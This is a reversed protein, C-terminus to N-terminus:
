QTISWIEYAEDELYKMIGLCYMFEEDGINSGRKTGGRAFGNKMDGQITLLTEGKEDTHEIVMEFGFKSEYDTVPSVAYYIFSYTVHINPNEALTFYVDYQQEAPRNTVKVGAKKLQSRLTYETVNSNPIDEKALINYVRTVGPAAWKLTKELPTKENPRQFDPIYKEALNEASISQGLNNKVIDEAQSTLEFLSASLRESKNAEGYIVPFPCM